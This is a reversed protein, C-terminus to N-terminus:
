KVIFEDNILLKKNYRLQKKDKQSYVNYGAYLCVAHGAAIDWEMTPSLRPYINASGDAVLCLKLSSGKQILEIKNKLSIKSIFDKTKQSLHSKSVAIKIIESKKISTRNLCFSKNILDKFDIIDAMDIYKFSGLGKLAFYLHNIAPAYVVGIVPIGDEILAINVTFEGNKDIFEKTGDIPDVIWFKNWNRREAYDTSKDEESLIPINTKSLYSRIIKNSQIDATTIPSSDVKYNVEVPLKYIDMIKNGAHVAAAYAINFLKNEINM